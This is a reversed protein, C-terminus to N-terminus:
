ETGSPMWSRSLSHFLSFSRSLPFLLALGIAVPRGRAKDGGGGGGGGDTRIVDAIGAGAEAGGTGGHSGAQAPHAIEARRGSVASGRGWLTQALPAGSGGVGGRM